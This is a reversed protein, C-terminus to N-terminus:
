VSYIVLLLTVHNILLSFMSLSLTLGVVMVISLDCQRIFVYVHGPRLKLTCEHHFSIPHPAVASFISFLLGTFIGTLPIDAM